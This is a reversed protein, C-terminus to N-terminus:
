ERTLHSFVSRRTVPRRLPSPADVSRPHITVAYNTNLRLVLDAAVVLHVQASFPFTATTGSHWSALRQVHSGGSRDYPLREWSRPSFARRRPWVQRALGRPRFVDGISHPVWLVSPVTTGLLQVNQPRRMLKQPLGRPMQTYLRASLGSTPRM